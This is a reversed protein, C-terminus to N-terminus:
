SKGLERVVRRLYGAMSPITPSLGLGNPPTEILGSKLLRQLCAATGEPHTQHHAAQAARPLAAVTSEVAEFAREYTNAATEELAGYVALVIRPDTAAITLRSGYYRDCLSEGHRIAARLNDQSIELSTSEALAHWVGKLYSALHQPWGMSAQAVEDAWREVEAATHRIPPASGGALTWLLSEFAAERAEVTSMTGLRLVSDSDLRSLGLSALRELTDSLGGCVLLFPFRNQTHLAKLLAGADDEFTQSEDALVLTRAAEDARNAYRNEFRIWDALDPPSTAVSRTRGARAVSAGATATESRTEVRDFAEPDVDFAAHALRELVAGEGAHTWPSALFIARNRTDQAEFRAGIENLLATKGAGPAGQLVITGGATGPQARIARSLVLDLETGRGAFHVPSARDTHTALADKLFERTDM